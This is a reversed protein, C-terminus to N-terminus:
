NKWPMVDRRMSTHSRSRTARIHLDNYICWPRHLSCQGAAISNLLRTSHPASCQRIHPFPDKVRDRPLAGHNQQRSFTSGRGVCACGKPGRGADLVRGWVPRSRGRSDRVKRSEM